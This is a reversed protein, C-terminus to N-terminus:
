RRVGPSEIELGNARAALYLELALYADSGYPMPEARVGTDCDRLRRHLSGFSEWELRYAPFGNGHGQSITDGRLKKGWNEDHCNACSLNMQGRRTFFYSQGERLYVESREDLSVNVPEDRSLHALYATLGLLAESEYDLAPLNQHRQRCANIQRELNFLDGTRDDIKPYSAAVGELPLANASHCEACSTQGSSTSSFLAEGKDVWFYGPNAFTDEQLAKTESTLFESGSKKDADSIGFTVPQKPDASCASLLAAM